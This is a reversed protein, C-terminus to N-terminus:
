GRERKNAEMQRVREALLEAYHAIEPEPARQLEQLSKEAARWPGAESKGRQLLYAFALPLAERQKRHKPGKLAAFRSLIRQADQIDAKRGLIEIAMAYCAEYHRARPYSVEITELVQRVQLPHLYEWNFIVISWGAGAIAGAADSNSTTLAELLLALTWEPWREEQLLSEEVAHLFLEYEASRGAKQAEVLLARLRAEDWM